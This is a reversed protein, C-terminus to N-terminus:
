LRRTARFPKAAKPSASCDEDQCYLIVSAGKEPVAKQIEEDFSENLPINKAGPLHFKRYYEEPLVEVIHVNNEDVKQQVESRTITQM